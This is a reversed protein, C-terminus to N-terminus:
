EGKDEVLIFRWSKGTSNDTVVECKNEEHLAKLYEFVSTIAENTVDTKNKGWIGSKLVTGASITKSFPNFGVKINSM